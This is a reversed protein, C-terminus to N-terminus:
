TAAARERAPETHTNAYVDYLDTLVQVHRLPVGRNALDQLLSQETEITQYVGARATQARSERSRVDYVGWALLLSAVFFLFLGSAILAVPIALIPGARPEFTVPHLSPDTPDEIPFRVPSPPSSPSSVRRSPSPPDPPRTPLPTGPPSPGWRNQARN